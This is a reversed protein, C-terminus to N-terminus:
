AITGLWWVTIWWYTAALAALTLAVGIKVPLRSYNFGIKNGFRSEVIIAPDDPNCYFMGLAWFRDDAHRASGAWGRAMASESSAESASVKLKCGGQGAKVAAVILLTCPILTQLISVWLLAQFRPWIQNLGICLFMVNISLSTLGTANGRLRRYAIHQAFSLAPDHADVQLKAKEISAGVLWMIATMGINFLPMMLVFGVSKEAWADPVSSFGSYHTPIVDPMSPYAALGIVGGALSIIIGAIYWLWPMSSLNGRSTSTKTDAFAASSVQWKREEKLRLAERHNPIIAALQLAAFIIPYYLSGLLTWDPVAM